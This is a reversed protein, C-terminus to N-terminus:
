RYENRERYLGQQGGCYDDDDDDIHQTPEEIRLQGILDYLLVINSYLDFDEKGSHIFSHIVSRFELNHFDDRIEAIWRKGTVATEKRASDNMMWCNLM